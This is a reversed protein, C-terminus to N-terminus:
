RDENPGGPQCHGEVNMAYSELFELGNLIEKSGNIEEEFSHIAELIVEREQPSKNKVLMDHALELSVSKKGIKEIFHKVMEQNKKQNFAM